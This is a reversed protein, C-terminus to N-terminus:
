AEHELASRLGEPGKKPSCCPPRHNPKGAGGIRPPNGRTHHESRFLVQRAPSNAKYRELKEM